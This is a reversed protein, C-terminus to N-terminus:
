VHARGIEKPPSLLAFTFSDPDRDYAAYSVRIWERLKERAPLGSAVIAEKERVMEDVVQRYISLFLDDKSKFHRYLAGETVGAAAAIDRVTVADVGDRAALRTAALILGQRGRRRPPTGITEM